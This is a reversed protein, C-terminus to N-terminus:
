TLRVGKADGDGRYTGALQGSTMGVAQKGMCGEVATSASTCSPLCTLLALMAAAAPLAVRAM